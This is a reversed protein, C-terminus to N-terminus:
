PEYVKADSLELSSLLLSSPEYGKAARLRVDADVRTGQRPVGAPGQWPSCYNACIRGARMNSVVPRTNSVSSHTNSVGPHTDSVVPRTDYVSPHTDRGSKHRPV